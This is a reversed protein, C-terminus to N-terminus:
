LEDDINFNFTDDLKANRQEEIEELRKRVTRKRLVEDPNSKEVRAVLKDVRLEATLDGITDGGIDPMADEDLEEEELTEDLEADDFENVEENDGIM